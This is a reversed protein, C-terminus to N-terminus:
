LKFPTGRPGLRKELQEYSPRPFQELFRLYEEFTMPGPRNRRLAEVDSPTTPIGRDLDLLDADRRSSM